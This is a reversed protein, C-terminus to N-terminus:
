SLSTAKMCCALAKAMEALIQRPRKYPCHSGYTIFTSLLITFQSANLCYCLTRQTRPCTDNKIFISVVCKPVYLASKLFVETTIEEGEADQEEPAPLNHPHSLYGLTLPPTRAQAASGGWLQRRAIGGSGPQAPASSRQM